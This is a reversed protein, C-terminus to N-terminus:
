KGLLNKLKFLYKFRSPINALDINLISNLFRKQELIIITTDNQLQVDHDLSVSVLPFNIQNLFDDMFDSGKISADSLM